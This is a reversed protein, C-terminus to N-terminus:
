KKPKDKQLLAKVRIPLFYRNFYLGVIGTAWVVIKVDMTHNFFLCSVASLTIIGFPSWFGQDKKILSFVILPIIILSALLEYPIFFLYIGMLTGAARGGKFNFFVPYGHGIIAGAGILGLSITSLNFLHDAILIPILAKFGDLLGTLIGWFKGTSQFTNYAGPNNNGLDRIDEGKVLKTIVYSFLISGTLYGSLLCIIYTLYIDM